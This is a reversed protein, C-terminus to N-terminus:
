ANGTQITQVMVSDLTEGILDERNFAPIIISVLDKM